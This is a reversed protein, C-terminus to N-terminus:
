NETLFPPLQKRSVITISEEDENFIIVLGGQDLQMKVHAVKIALPTEFEGYDIGDRTVFEEIVGQLADNSLQQHPILM